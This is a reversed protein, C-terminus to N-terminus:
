ELLVLPIRTLVAGLACAFSAHGGLCVVVRPRRRRVLALGRVTAKLLGWVARANEGTLRRQIGRGPLQDLSFGAATVHSAELGRDSGVFHITAPPHGREVLARATALGPLLHGATGGGAMIAWTQASNDEYPM